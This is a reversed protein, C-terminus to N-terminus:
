SRLHVSCYYTYYILHFGEMDSKARSCAKECPREEKVKNMTRRVEAMVGASRNKAHKCLCISKTMSINISVGFEVVVGISPIGKVLTM